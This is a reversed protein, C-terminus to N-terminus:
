IQTSLSLNWFGSKGEFKYKYFKVRAKVLILSRTYGITTIIVITIESIESLTLTLPNKFDNMFIKFIYRNIFHADLYMYISITNNIQTGSIEM